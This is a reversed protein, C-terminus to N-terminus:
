HMNKKNKKENHNLLSKIDGSFACGTTQVIAFFFGVALANQNPSAHFIRLTARYTIYSYKKKALYPSFLHTSVKM